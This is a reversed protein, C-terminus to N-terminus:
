APTSLSLGFMNGPAAFWECLKLGASELMSSATERTFKHSCETWITEDPRVEVELDITELRAVQRTRPRLHMEIRAEDHNFIAEHEFAEPDFDGDLGKNIVSLMNKNFAATVGAADNYARRITEVDKVLDTGMLLYDDPGLIQRIQSLLEIREQRYLNGITSGLFLVLRRGPPAPIRNLHRQFDGVIGHLELDPYRALLTEGASLIISESVDFPIYRRVSQQSHGADLLALTKTSSGSGLEVIEAPKLSGMVDNAIAQLLSGESRMPYYEPQETIKEFLESGYEDYFYKPPLVKPSATLGERVDNAMTSFFDTGNLHNDIRLGKLLV